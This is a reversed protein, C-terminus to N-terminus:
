TAATESAVSAREAIRRQQSLPLFCYMRSGRGIESEIQLNTGHRRLVHKVIALGLGTGGRARLGRVDVRYFRETLRSIHEPAIGIGDDKIEFRALDAVRTWRVSVNGGDPSYRIANTVLNTFASRLEEPVAEIVLDPDADLIFEHRGSSIQIAESFIEELQQSGHFPRIQDPSPLPSSELSTLTLLDEVLSKMRGVPSSLRKTLDLLTPKDMDADVAELYGLVVTLPTRLEHSVNALFQQRMSLFRNLETVNRAVVITESSETPFLRFEMQISDDIPSTTELIREHEGSALMSALAPERILHTLRKGVDKSTLGLMREAARNFMEVKEREGLLVWADPLEDAINRLRLAMAAFSRSRTRAGRMQQRIRNAPQKWRGLERSLPNLPQRLWLRFKRSAREQLICWATASCALGATLALVWEEFWIGAAVGSILFM